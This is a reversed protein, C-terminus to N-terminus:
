SASSERLVRLFAEGYREAKIPGVGSVRLLAARTTPRHEIMDWLVQDGFVIYAPVGQADALQKRLVRLRQFLPDSPSRDDGDAGARPAAEVPTRTRRAGAVRFGARSARPARDAAQVMDPVTVGDCRDCATGCSDIREGFHALIARHRCTDSEALRYLQTTARQKDRRLDSDDLEDLFRERLKVDAWSYFLVCDSPLGDRGARGMEQYWSEVDGPLDRHIVFRVNPKDIGMGFAITAVIVDAEDRAFAEQHRIRDGPDLGAHYPAARIGSRRLFAVTQEVTKRALCYVIGSEPSLPM